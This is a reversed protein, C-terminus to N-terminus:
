CSYDDTNCYFQQQLQRDSYVYTCSHVGSSLIWSYDGSKFTSLGVLKDGKGIEVIEVVGNTAARAEEKSKWFSGINGQAQALDNQDIMQKMMASHRAMGSLETIANFVSYRPDKM